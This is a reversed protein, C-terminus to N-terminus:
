VIRLALTQPIESRRTLACTPADHRPGRVYSELQDIAFQQEEILHRVMDGISIMGVLRGGEIVPLHRIRQRTMLTMCEDASTGLSVSMVPATMIECVTTTRSVNDQLIVKRAYDRETVIGCVADGVVVVLAGVEARSMLAIAEYVSAEADITHVTTDRKAKLVQKVTSM